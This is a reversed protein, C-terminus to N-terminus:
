KWLWSNQIDLYLYLCNILKKQIGNKIHEKTWRLYNNIPNFLFINFFFILHFNFQKFWKFFCLLLIASVRFLSCRYVLRKKIFMQHIIDCLCQPLLMFTSRAEWSIESSWFIDLLQTNLYGISFCVSPEREIHFPYVSRM